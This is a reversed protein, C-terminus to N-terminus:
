RTAIFRELREFAEELQQHEPLFIIRIHAAGSGGYISGVFPLLLKEERLLATAFDEDNKWRTKIQTIHPFAYFAAQPKTCTVGDMENLRKWTYDRRPKLQAIMSRAADISGSYAHIAAFLIPTPICSSMHGYLKAVNKVSETLELMKEDPDHFAIYGFRWGTKQFVKSMGSLIIAPVDGAVDAISRAEIDDFTLLGYIEDSVIPINHEGAVDVIRKLIKESYVTGTPNNPNNIFIFKTRKSMRSRMEDLNPEWNRPESSTCPLVNARFADIYETPGTLYHCPEFTLIEDGADLLSYHLVNFAGAVGPTLVIDNRSYASNRYRREFEVIARKLDEAISTAYPYMDWGEEAVRALIKSLAENRFGHLPPDGASLTLVEEGSEELQRRLGRLRSVVGRQNRSRAVQVWRSSPKISITGGINSRRINM